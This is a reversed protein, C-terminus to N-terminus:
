FYIVFTKRDATLEGNYNKDGSVLCWFMHVGSGLVAGGGFQEEVGGSPSVEAQFGARVPPHRHALRSAGVGEEEQLNVCPDFEGLTDLRGFEEGLKLFGESLIERLPPPSITVAGQRPSQQKYFDM